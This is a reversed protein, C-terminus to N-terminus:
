RGDRAGEQRTGRDQEGRQLSGELERLGRQWMLAYPALWRAMEAFGEGRLAYLRRRGDARSEVLGAERLVRLHRSANPQSLGARVALEGAPLPGAVLLDLLRRRAPEAIVDFASAV